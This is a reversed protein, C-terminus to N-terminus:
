SDNFITSFPTNLKVNFGTLKWLPSDELEIKSDSRPLIIKQRKTPEIRSSGLRVCDAPSPWAMTSKNRLEGVSFATFTIVELSNCISLLPSWHNEFFLFHNSLIHCKYPQAFAVSISLNDVVPKEKCHWDSILWVLSSFQPLWWSLSITKIVTTGLFEWFESTLLFSSIFSLNFM